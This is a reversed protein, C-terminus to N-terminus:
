LASAMLLLFFFKSLVTALQLIMYGATKYYLPVLGQDRLCQNFRSLFINLQRYDLYDWRVSAMHLFNHLREFMFSPTNETLFLDLNETETPALDNKILKRVDARIDKSYIEVGSCNTIRWDTTKIISKQYALNVCTLKVVELTENPLLADFAKIIRKKLMRPVNENWDKTLEQLSNTYINYVEQVILQPEKTNILKIKNESQKKSNLLFEIQFDKIVASTTREIIFDVTKRVSLSQSQLFEDALIKQIDKSQDIVNTSSDALKTTIHRYRGTRSVTKSMKSPMISVRFDALFPCAVNLISELMPHMSKTLFNVDKENQNKNIKTVTENSKLQLVCELSSGKKDYQSIRLPFESSFHESISCPVLVNAVVYDEKSTLSQFIGSRRNQHYKYYEEPISPSEFLWGLCSRLIFKSTPRMALYEKDNLSSSLIYLEYLINLVDKFYNLRLTVYDLMTLYQVLWPITIILKKEIISKILISKVDFSPQTSNRLDIQKSDVSISRQGDYNFPQAIIFGIFKALVRLTTILEPRVVFETESNKNDSNSLNLTEYSSNNIELLDCILAIKLQEIFISHNEVAIIFDRFFSQNGPFLYETSFHSPTILRQRLKSLKNLDINPLAMQLEPASDDFNCSVILQAVFLKSLHAMNIPHDTIRLLSIVKKSLDTNFDFSPNLHKLEWDRSISFKYKKKFLM